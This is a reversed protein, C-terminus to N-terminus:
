GRQPILTTGYALMEIVLAGQQASQGSFLESTEFRVNSVSTAGRRQADELMRLYALKRAMDAQETMSEM